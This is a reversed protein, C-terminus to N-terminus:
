PILICLYNCLMRDLNKRERKRLVTLLSNLLDTLSNRIGIKKEGVSKIEKDSKKKRETNCTITHGM